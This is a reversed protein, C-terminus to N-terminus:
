QVRCHPKSTIIHPTSVPKVEAQLSREYEQRRRALADIRASEFHSSTGGNNSAQARFLKRYADSLLALDERFLTFTQPAPSVHEFADQSRRVGKGAGVLFQRGSVTLSAIHVNGAARPDVKGGAASQAWGGYGFSTAEQHMVKDWDIAFDVPGTRLDSEYGARAESVLVAVFCDGVWPLQILLKEHGSAFASAKDMLTSFHNALDQLAGDREFAEAVRQCFGDLDNRFTIGFRTLPDLISPRATTPSSLPAARSHVRDPSPGDEFLGRVEVSAARASKTISDVLGRDSATGRGKRIVLQALADLDETKWVGSTPDRWTLQGSGVESGGLRKAPRNAADGISVLSTDNHIGRGEVVLTRGHDGAMRWGRVGSGHLASSLSVHTLMAWDLLDRVSMASAPMGVHITPGQLELVHGDFQAATHMCVATARGVLKFYQKAAERNDAAEMDLGYNIDLYVHWLTAPHFRSGTLASASKQQPHLLERISKARLPSTPKLLENM